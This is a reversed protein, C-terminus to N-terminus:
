PPTSALASVIFIRDYKQVVPDLDATLVGTSLPSLARDKQRYEQPVGVM